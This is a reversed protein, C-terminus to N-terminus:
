IEGHQKSDHNIDLSQLNRNPNSTVTDMNLNKMVLLRKRIEPVAMKMIDEPKALPDKGEIGEVVAAVVDKHDKFEPYDAYFKANMKHLAAHSVMLNGIVEPILLLTKEVAKNVAEEIIEQKEKEDIM